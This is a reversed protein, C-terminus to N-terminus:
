LSPRGQTQAIETMMIQLPLQSNAVSDASYTQLHLHHPKCKTDVSAKNISYSSQISPPAAATQCNSCPAETGMNHEKISPNELRAMGFIGEAPLTNKSKNEQTKTSFWDILQVHTFLQWWCSMLQLFCLWQCFMAPSQLQSILYNWLSSKRMLFKSM